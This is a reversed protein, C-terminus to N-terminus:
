VVSKRDTNGTSEGKQLSITRKSIAFCRDQIDIAKNIKEQIEIESVPKCLVMITYNQGNLSRMLASLDKNQYEGDIKLAPIGSICGVYRDNDIKVKGSSSVSNSFRETYKEIKVGPLLGEIIVKMTENNSTPQVGLVISTKGDNSVIGYCVEQKIAYATTFLKQMKEAFYAFMDDVNYVTCECIRYFTFSNLLDLSNEQPFEVALQNTVGYAPFYSTIFDSAYVGINKSDEKFQALANSNGQDAENKNMSENM